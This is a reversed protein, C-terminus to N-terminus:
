FGSMPKAEDPKRLTPLTTAAEGNLRCDTEIEVGVCVGCAQL